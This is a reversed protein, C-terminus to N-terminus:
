SELRQWLRALAQHIQQRKASRCGSRALVVVDLGGLEHQHHRFSERVLRKVRNRDVAHRLIKKSIALGLRPHGLGNERALLLLNRDGSRRAAAFVRKFGTAEM